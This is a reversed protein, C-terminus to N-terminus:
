NFLNFNDITIKLKQALEYDEVFVANNLLVKLEQQTGKRLLSLDFEHYKYEKGLKEPYGDILICQYLYRGKADPEVRLVNYVQFDLDQYKNHEVIDGLVYKNFKWM